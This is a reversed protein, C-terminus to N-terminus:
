TGKKIERRKGDGFFGFTKPDNNVIREGSDYWVCLLQM